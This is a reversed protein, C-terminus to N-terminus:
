GGVFSVASLSAVAVQKIELAAGAAMTKESLLEFCSRLSDETIHSDKGLEVQIKTIRVFEKEKALASVRDLLQQTIHWEHM